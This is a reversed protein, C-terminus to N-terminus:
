RRIAKTRSSSNSSGLDRYHDLEVGAALKAADQRSDTFVVLKRASPPMDTLERMLGDALVQNVKQFGTRHRIIPSAIQEIAIAEEATTSGVRTWDADCRCCRSPMASLVRVVEEDLGQTRIQYLWGNHSSIPVSTSMVQRPELQSTLEDFRRAEVGM